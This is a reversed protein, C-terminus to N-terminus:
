AARRSFQRRRELTYAYTYLPDMCADFEDRVGEREAISRLLTATALIDRLPIDDIGGQVTDPIPGHDRQLAQSLAAVTNSRPTSRTHESRSSLTALIALATPLNM